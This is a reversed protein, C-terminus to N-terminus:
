SGGVGTSTCGLWIGELIISIQHLLSEVVYEVKDGGVRADLEKLM